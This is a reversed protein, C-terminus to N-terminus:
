LFNNELESSVLRVLCRTEAKELIFQESREEGKGRSKNKENEM